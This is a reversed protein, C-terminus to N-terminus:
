YYISDEKMENLIIKLKNKEINLSSSLKDITRKGNEIRKLILNKIDSVEM